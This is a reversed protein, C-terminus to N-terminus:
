PQTRATAASVAAFDPSATRSESARDREPEDAARVRDDRALVIGFVFAIVSGIPVYWPFALPLWLWEPDTAVNREVAFQGYRNTWVVLALATALLAAVRVVRVFSTGRRLDPIARLVIWAVFFLATIWACAQESRPGHWAIAFISVVSLPASWLFGSGDVSLKLFALFFGALLAGQSYAAMSLGLDLVSGYHRSVSHMKYALAALMVGFLVVFVRSARIARREEAAVAPRAGPALQAVKRARWPQYVSMLATQSLAALIADLSSIAAAFIGAVIAGKMGNPVVETIFIPLLRDGKETYLALAAGNMPHREYYAFLGVGVFAVIVSVIVGVSSSVLALRADRVSRCCFLRQAMLQDVGYSAIGGWSSAIAAAWFTYAKVPSRDFDFFDIKHADVGVRWIRAFGTDLHGAIVFLALVAAGTFVFFLLFDTWIVAVIGGIWTWLIAFATIIGISLALSPVHATTALKTLPEHLIVELVLATLYVRAAQGLVGGLAFLATAMDRARPGLKRGMYDYPSYIEREYYAPVLWWAIACRALVSGIVLLQLYAFSGGPKYVVFPVSVLTLASIETAIISASVAWWPLRRGGLFFERITAQRGFFLGLLTTAALTGLVIAWDVTTFGGALTAQAAQTVQAAEVM